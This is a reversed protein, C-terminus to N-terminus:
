TSKGWLHDAFAIDGPDSPSNHGKFWYKWQGVGAVRVEEEKVTTYRYCWLLRAAGATGMACCGELPWPDRGAKYQQKRRMAKTRHDDRLRDGLSSDWWTEADARHLTGVGM